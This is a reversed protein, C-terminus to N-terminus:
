MTPLTLHTYSVALAKQQYFMFGSGGLMFLLKMEPPMGGGSYKECLESLVDDYSDMDTMFSQSWGDMKGNTFNSSMREIGSVCFLLGQQAFQVNGQMDIEKKIRIFESKVEELSNEMSLRRFTYMGRKEMRKLQSLFYAKEQQIEDFTKGSEEPKNFLPVSNSTAYNVYDNGNGSGFGNSEDDKIPENDHEFSNGIGNSNKVFSLGLDVEDEVAPDHTFYENNKSFEIHNDSNSPLNGISLHKSQQEREIEVNSNVSNYM